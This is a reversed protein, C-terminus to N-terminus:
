AKKEPESSLYICVAFGRAFGLDIEFGKYM